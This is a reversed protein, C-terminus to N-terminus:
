ISNPSGALGASAQNNTETGSYVIGFGARFVTKPTIQYALGLRPAVAFPYNGAVYCDCRGTGHGDFVTGGLLGAKPNVTSPSFFPARGYQEQLFTSYDYRLGYDFTLRRTIKWSDQAYVGFQKK